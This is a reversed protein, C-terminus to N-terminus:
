RLIISIIFAMLNRQPVEILQARMEYPNAGGPKRWWMDGASGSKKFGLPKLAKTLDERKKATDMGDLPCKGEYNENSSRVGPFSDYKQTFKMGPFVPKVHQAVEELAQTLDAQAAALRTKAELKM